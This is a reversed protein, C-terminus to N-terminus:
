VPEPLWKLSVLCNHSSLEEKRRTGLNLIHPDLGGYANIVHRKVRIRSIHLIPSSRVTNWFM